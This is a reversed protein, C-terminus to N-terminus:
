LVYEFASFQGKLYTLMSLSWFAKPIQWVIKMGPVSM